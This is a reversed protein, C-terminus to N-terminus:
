ARVLSAFCLKAAALSFPEVLRVTPFPEVILADTVLLISVPSYLVVFVSVLLLKWLLGDTRRAMCGICVLLLRGKRWFVVLWFSDLVYDSM